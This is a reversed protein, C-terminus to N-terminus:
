LHKLGLTEKVDFCVPLIMILCYVGDRCYFLKLKNSIQFFFGLFVCYVFSHVSYTAMKLHHLSGFNILFM